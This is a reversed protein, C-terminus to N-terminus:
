DSGQLVARYVGVLKEAEQSWSYKLSELRASRMKENVEERDLNNILKVFEGTDESHIWGISNTQVFNSMEPFDPAIVSIGAFLYEWIKNPLAYYYSLCENEVGSIGVDASSTWQLVESPPVASKFHIRDCSSAANKVLEELPGSGMFVIHRDISSRKFVEILQEIRRGKSLIGQYLFVFDTTKIHFENRFLDNLIPKGQWTTDPVARVVEPRSIEYRLKYWDAIHESVVISADVKRIGRSEVIRSLKQRIGKNAVTETELEHVDYVVKCGISKKVMLSSQLATLSRCGIVDPSFTPLLEMLQRHYERSWHLKQLFSAHKSASRPLLIYEFGREHQHLGGLEAKSSSGVFVVRDFVGSSLLANCTKTIRSAFAIDGPYVQVCVRSAM